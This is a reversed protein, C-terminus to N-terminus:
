LKTNIWFCKNLIQGPKYRFKGWSISVFGGGAGGGEFGGKINQTGGFNLVIM